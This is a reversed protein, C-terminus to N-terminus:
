EGFGALILSKVADAAEEAQEGTAVIELLSGEPADLTLLKILSISSATKSQHSIQMECDFQSSLAVIQAAARAHLGKKNPVGCTLKITPTPNSM